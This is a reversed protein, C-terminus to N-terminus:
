RKFAAVGSVTTGAIGGQNLSYALGLGQGSNGTFAGIIKGSTNPTSLAPITATGCTGGVCINLNGGGSAGRGAEFFLRNQIPIANAGAAWTQGNVSLNVGANVTQAAFDAVLTAANLTGAASGLNDTPSTGGVKTYSFTGTTPLATPGTQLPSFIGHWNQTTLDVTKPTFGGGIRDFIAVVGGGYRGWSIGTAADSGSELLTAPIKGTPLAVQGTGPTAGTAVFSTPDISFRAATQSVLAACPTPTCSFNPPITIPIDGDWRTPLGTVPDIALRSYANFGGDVQALYRNDVSAPANAPSAGPDANLGVAMLGLRYPVNGPDIAAPGITTVGGNTTYSDLAFAVAGNVGVGPSPGFNDQFAYTMGAGSLGAGMLQGNIQGQYYPASAGNLQVFLSQHLAPSAFDFSNGFFGNDGTLRLTTSPNGSLAGGPTTTATFNRATSTNVTVSLEVGVAAKNFDVALIASNLTGTSGDTAAPPTAGDLAYKATGTMAGQLQFPFVEPGKIWAYSGQSALSFTNGQSFTGTVTGGSYRGFSIGTVAASTADTAATAVSGGTLTESRPTPETPAYDTVTNPSGAGFPSTYGTPSTQYSNNSAVYYLNAGTGPGFYSTIISQSGSAATAPAPGAVATGQTFGVVGEIYDNVPRGASLALDTALGPVYRTVFDYRFLAGGATGNGAFGGNFRAGYSNGGSSPAPACNSGFCQVQVASSGGSGNLAPNSSVDFGFGTVIPVNAAAATLNQGNISVSVAPNVTQKTFNASLSAYNLAGVNGLSDTPNTAYASTYEFSGSVPISAPVERVAWNVSRNGLNTFYSEPAGTNPSALYNALDQTTITGGQYRGLRVGNVTDNYNGDPTTGGAFSATAVSLPSPPGAGPIGAVAVPENGIFSPPGSTGRDSLRYPTDQIRILNGSADFLYNSANASTGAPFNYNGFYVYAAAPDNVQTFAQHRFLGTGGSVGTAVIGQAPAATSSLVAMGQILGTFPQAAASTAVLPAFGYGMGINAGNGAIGGSVRGGYGSAACDAGTCSLTLKGVSGSGGQDAAIFSNGPVIPTNAATATFAMARSSPAVPDSPNNAFALGLSIDLTQKSFNAAITASNLTGVNGIADTAHTAASLAYNATGTLTQPFEVPMATTSIGSLQSSYPSAAMSLIGWHSSTAGLPMTFAPVPNTSALDTVLVDGGQWRGIYLSNDATHFADKATGGSIRVDADIIQAPAATYNIGAASYGSHRIEVLSKGGDLVYSTNVNRTRNDFNQREFGGTVAKVALLGHGFQNAGPAPNNYQAVVANQQVTQANAQVSALGSTTAALAADAGAKATQAAAVLSGVSAASTVATSVATVASGVQAQAATVATQAAALQTAATSAASQALTQAQTAATQQQQAIALQQQAVALQAQAGNIDGASQLSQAHTAAAQAAQAAIQAASAASQAASLYGPISSTAGSAASQATALAANQSTANAVATNASGLSANAASLATAAASQANSLATNQATVSNPDAVVGAAKQVSTNAAQLVTNANDMLPKAAIAASDALSGNAAYASAAAAVATAASNALSGAATANASATTINAPALAQVASVATQVSTLAPVANIANTAPALSVPLLAAATGTKTNADAQATTIASVAAQTATYSALALDAAAQAQAAFVVESVPATGISIPVTTGNLSTLTQTTTNVTRGSADTATAAIVPAVAAAAAAAPAAASPAAAMITSTPDVVATDRIPTASEAPKEAATTTQRPAETKQEESSKAPAAASQQSEKKGEDKAKQPGPAPTPKYFPPISPLIVPPTKSIPAFGVQNRQIDISGADTSIFAVGVNVKDYTGPAAIAPQGPAPPLIVMPEHDTGRIGITATVTKITYNQRNSRGIFGTITRFGGQLLSVIASETGDEKGSYRYTDFGMNTNPRIAIFGGDVMRIQASAGDATVIRDGENVEAGKQLARTVGARNILKVDGIVFQVNGAAGFAAGAYAAFLLLVSLIKLPNKWSFQM